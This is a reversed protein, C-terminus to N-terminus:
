CLKKLFSSLSLDQTENLGCLEITNLEYIWFLERKLLQNILNGERPNLRVREIGICKFSTASGNYHMAIACSMSGDVVAKHEAVRLKPNFKTQGVYM